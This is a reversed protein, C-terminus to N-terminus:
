FQGYLKCNSFRFCSRLRPASRPLKFMMHEIFHSIGDESESEVSAGTHVLIGMTVSMLGPMQKVILRIGNKLQKCHVM